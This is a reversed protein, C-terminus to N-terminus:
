APPLVERSRAIWVPDGFLLYSGTRMGCDGWAGLVVDDLRRDPVFRALIVGKWPPAYERTSPLQRMRLADPGGDFFLYADPGGGDDCPATQVDIHNAQYARLLDTPGPPDDHAAAPTQPTLSAAPPSPPSTWAVHLAVTASVVVALISIPLWVRINPM